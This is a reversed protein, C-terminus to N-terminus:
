LCFISQWIIMWDKTIIGDEIEMYHYIHLMYLVHGHIFGYMPYFWINQPPYYKPSQGDTRVDTQGDTTTHGSSYRWYWHINKESVKCM